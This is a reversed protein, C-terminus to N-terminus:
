VNFDVLAHGTMEAPQPVGMMKLLTPALDSLSGAEAMHAPRGVYLLPVLNTTHQTHPQNNAYDMMVEVNGHDATIIVEGRIESAEGVVLERRRGRECGPVAVGM